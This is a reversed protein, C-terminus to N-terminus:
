HSRSGPAPWASGLASEGLRALRWANPSAGFEASFWRGFASMSSYGTLGAVTGIPRETEILYRQALERKVENLLSAFSRQEKELGRQLARPSLGLNHAVSELSAWGTPLLLTIARRASDSIPNGEPELPVLDLLRRAHRAMAEDALPNPTEMAETRCALGNFDSGFRVPGAFLREVTSLDRPAERIFHITSPQWRDGSAGRLVIYAMAVSLEVIQPKAYEALLELRVHSEGRREELAFNLLENMHRRYGILAEVVDRVTPLHQLLLSLPGLSAFTRCEAMMLGFSECGSKRASQELLGVVASAPLRNEPDELLSPSIGAERLLEFPDLGVFRAVELYSTLTAARM